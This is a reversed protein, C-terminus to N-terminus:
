CLQPRILARSSIEPFNKQQKTINDVIVTQSIKALCSAKVLYTCGLVDKSFHLLTFGWSFSLATSRM